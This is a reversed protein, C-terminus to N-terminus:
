PAVVRVPVICPATPEGQNDIAILRLRYDGPTVVSTDWLGLAGNEVVERGASITAWADSGQPAVEYKYFGFNEIKVTGELTITDRVEQGPSPVTFLLVGPICGSSLSDSESVVPSNDLAEPALDSPPASGPTMLIDVTPTPLIDKAPISPAVFSAIVLESVFLAVLLVLISISQGLRRIAYERELGFVAERLEIWSRIMWRFTFLAGLALLIYILGEYNALFRYITGM